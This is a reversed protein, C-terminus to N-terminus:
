HMVKVASPAYWQGTPLIHGNKSIFLGFRSIHFVLYLLYVVGIGFVDFISILVRLVGVLVGIVGTRQKTAFKCM